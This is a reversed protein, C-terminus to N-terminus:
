AARELLGDTATYNDLIGVVQFWPPEPHPNREIRMGVKEMVRISAANDDSTTAVIRKLHLQRFAYDIMARAAETALGRRQHAPSFAYYLGFETSYLRAGPLDGAASSANPLQDFPGFSPVFGCVGVLEGTDRLVVARDGYPPQNLKALEEYNLVTWRLWRERAARAKAGESGSVADGLRVDLLQHVDDLDNIAFARVVLRETELAPVAM